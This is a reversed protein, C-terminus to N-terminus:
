NSTNGGKDRRDDNHGILEDSNFFAVVFIIGAIAAGVGISIVGRTLYYACVYSLDTCIMSIDTLGWIILGASLSILFALLHALINHKIKKRRILKICGECPQKKVNNLM